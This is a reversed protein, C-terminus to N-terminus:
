GRIRRRTVMVETIEGGGTKRVALTVRSGVPGRIRQVADDFGLETVTKGDIAVIADGAALGAEAAGGGQIVQGIILADEKASLVAGIGTLEIRPEEGEETRALEITVPPGATGDEAIVLGSVIRGHHGEAVVTLSQFGSGLGGLEFHGAADTTTSTLVPAVAARGEISVRAGELPKKSGEELVVGTVRGGRPLAIDASAPAGPPDPISFPADASPGYGHAVAMLSYQGPPVGGVDYHGQADFVTATTFQEREIPGVRKWIVITFAAVPAGTAKDRVTGQVRGGATLSLTVDQAGSAVDEAKAPALGEFSATITYRAGEATELAFRGEEDSTAQPFARISSDVVPSETLKGRAVVRAGELPAGRPDLVRGTISSTAQPPEPKPELQIVLRRSVQVQADVRARAPAHGPHRAELIADDPASFRFEGRADTTFQDALPAISIEGGNEDLVRVTAGEVPERKPGRVLGTYQIAPTLYIRIDHIREGPRATLTFPSQGFAPAFPLYGEGTAMAIEYVGAESPKFQFSGDARSTVTSTLAGHAFTISAGAVGQGTSWSLVRGEFAGHALADDRAAAGSALRLPASPEASVAARASRTLAGASVGPAASGPARTDGGSSRGTEGYRSTAFRWVLLAGLLLAAFAILIRSPKSMALRM